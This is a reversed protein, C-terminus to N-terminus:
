YDTNQASNAVFLYSNFYLTKITSGAYTYAVESQSLARRDRARDM